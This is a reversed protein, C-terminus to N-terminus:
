EGTPDGPGGMVGGSPLDPLAKACARRSPCQRVRLAPTTPTRPCVGPLATCAFRRVHRAGQRILHPPVRRCGVTIQTPSCVGKAHGRARTIGVEGSPIAIVQCSHGIHPTRRRLAMPWKIGRTSNMSLSVEGPQM